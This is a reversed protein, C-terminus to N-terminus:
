EKFGSMKRVFQNDGKQTRGYKKFDFSEGIYRRVIISLKKVHAKLNRADFKKKLYLQKSNVRYRQILELLIDMIPIM